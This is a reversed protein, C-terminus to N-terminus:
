RELSGVGMRFFVKGTCIGGYVQLVSIGGDHFM